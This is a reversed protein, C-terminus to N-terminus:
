IEFHIVVHLMNTDSILSIYHYGLSSFPLVQIERPM